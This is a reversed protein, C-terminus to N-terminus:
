RSRWLYWIAFLPVGAVLGTFVLEKGAIFLPHSTLVSDSGAQFDVVVAVGVLLFGILTACIVCGTAAGFMLAVGKHQTM